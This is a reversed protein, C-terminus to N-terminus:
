SSSSANCGVGSKWSTAEAEQKQSDGAVHPTGRPWKHLATLCAQVQSSLVFAPPPLASLLFFWSSSPPFSSLLHCPQCPLRMQCRCRFFWSDLPLLPLAHPLAQPGSAQPWM